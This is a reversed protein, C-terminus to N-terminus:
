KAVQDQQGAKEFYLKEVEVESQRVALALKGPECSLLFTVDDATYPAVADARPDRPEVPPSYLFRIGELRLNRGAPESSVEFFDSSYSAVWLGENAITVRQIAFAGKPFAETVSQRWHDASERAVAEWRGAIGPDSLDCGHVNSCGITALMLLSVGSFRIM